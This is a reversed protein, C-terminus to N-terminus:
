KNLEEETFTYKALCENDNVDRNSTNIIVFSDIKDFTPHFYATYLRIYKIVPILNDTNPNGAIYTINQPTSVNTGTASTATPPTPPTTPVTLATAPATPAPNTPPIISVDLPPVISYDDKLLAQIANTAASTINLYDSPSSRYALNKYRHSELIEKAKTSLERIIQYVDIGPDEPIETKRPNLKALQRGFSGFMYTNESKVLRLLDTDNEAVFAINRREKKYDTDLIKNIENQNKTITNVTACLSDVFKHNCFFFIKKHSLQKKKGGEQKLELYKNKYKLYKKYYKEYDDM